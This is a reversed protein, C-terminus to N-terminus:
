NGNNAAREFSAFRNDQMIGRKELIISVEKGARRMLRLYAQEAADGDDDAIATIIAAMERGQIPIVKPVVDYFDKLPFARMARIVNPLQPSQAARIITRNFAIAELSKEGTGTSDMFRRRIAKLQVPLDPGGRVVALSAAYGLLRGYFEYHDEITTADLANVFAGRHMENSIWGEQELLILAERLPIRSIGLREAIEAQPVKAGAPLDGSLILNRIYDAAHDGTTRRVLKEGTMKAASM